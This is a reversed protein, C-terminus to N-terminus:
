DSCGRSHAAVGRRLVPPSPKVGRHQPRRTRVVQQAELQLTAHTLFTQSMSAVDTQEECMAQDDMLSGRLGEGCMFPCICWLRETRHHCGDQENTILLDLSETKTKFPLLNFSVALIKLVGNKRLNRNKFSTKRADSVETPKKLYTQHLNERQPGFM